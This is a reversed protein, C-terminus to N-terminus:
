TEGNTTSMHFTGFNSGEVTGSVLASKSVTAAKEIGITYTKQDFAEIKLQDGPHLRGPTFLDSNLSALASRNASAAMARNLGREANSNPARGATSEENISNFLSLGPVSDQVAESQEAGPLPSSLVTSFGFLLVVLLVLTPAVFFKSINTIKKM